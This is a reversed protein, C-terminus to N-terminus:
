DAFQGERKEKIKLPFQKDFEELEENSPDFCPDFVYVGALGDLTGQTMVNVMFFNAESPNRNEDLFIGYKCAAEFGFRNYYIPNGTIFIADYGLDKARDISYRILEQGVGNKQYDPRIGVPGFTIFDMEGGNDLRLTGHSYIITGIIEGNIEVIYDLKKIFTPNNRLNHTVLHENCGPRYINWFAERTVNEVEFYDREEENRIIYDMNVGLSFNM